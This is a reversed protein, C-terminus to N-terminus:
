KSVDLVSFLPCPLRASPLIVHFDAYLTTLSGLGRDGPEQSAALWSQVKSLLLDSSDEKFFCFLVLLFFYSCLIVNPIIGVSHNLGHSHCEKMFKLYHVRHVSGGILTHACPRTCTHTCTHARIHTYTHAHTLTHIHTCTYTHACTHTYTHTHMHTSTLTHMHTHLHVHTRMHSHTCTYTHVHTHARTHMHTHTYTRAHTCTYTHAHTHM